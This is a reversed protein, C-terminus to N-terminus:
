LCKKTIKINILYKKILIEKLLIIFNILKIINNFKIEIKKNYIKYIFQERSKKNVHPSKLLTFLTKRNKINFYKKININNKKELNLIIKKIKKNKIKTNSKLTIKLIYLM